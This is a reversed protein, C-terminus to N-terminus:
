LCLGPWMGSDPSSDSAKRRIWIRDNETEKPSYNDDELTEPVSPSKLSDDESELSLATVSTELEAESHLAGPTRASQEDEDSLIDTEKVEDQDEYEELDFQEEVWRDTDSASESQQDPEGEQQVPDASAKDPSTLNLDPEVDFAIDTDITFRHRVLKRRGLTRTPASASFLLPWLKSQSTKTNYPLYNDDSLYIRCLM